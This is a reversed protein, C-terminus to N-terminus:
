KGPAHQMADTQCPHLLPLGSLWRHHQHGGHAHGRRTSCGQVEGETAEGASLLLLHRSLTTLLVPSTCLLQCLKRFDAPCSLALRAPSPQAPCPLAPCPLAPCSLCTCM